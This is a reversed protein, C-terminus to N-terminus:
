SSFRVKGVTLVPWDNLCGIPQDEGPQLYLTHITPSSDTRTNRYSVALSRYHNMNRVRLVKAPQGDGCAQSGDLDHVWQVYIRSFDEATGTPLDSLDPKPIYYGAVRYKMTVVRAVAGPTTVSDLFIQDALSRREGAQLLVPTTTETVILSNGARDYMSVPQDPTTVLTVVVRSTLNRNVLFACSLYCGPQRAEVIPSDTPAARAVSVGVCAILGILSMQM